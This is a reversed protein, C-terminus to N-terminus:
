EKWEVDNFHTKLSPPPHNKKSVVWFVACVFFVTIAFAAGLCLPYNGYVMYHSLGAGLVIYGNPHLCLHWDLLAKDWGLTSTIDGDIWIIM